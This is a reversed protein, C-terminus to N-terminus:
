IPRLLSRVENLICYPSSSLRPPRGTPRDTPRDLKITDPACDTLTIMKSTQRELIKHNIRDRFNRKSSRLNM